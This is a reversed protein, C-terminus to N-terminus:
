IKINYIASMCQIAKNLEPLTYEEFFFMCTDLFVILVSPSM